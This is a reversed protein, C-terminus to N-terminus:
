RSTTQYRQLEAKTSQLEYDLKRKEHALRRAENASHQAQVESQRKEETRATVEARSRELGGNVEELQVVLGDREVRLRELNQRTSTSEQWSVELRRHAEEGWRKAVDLAQAMARLRTASEHAQPQARREAERAEEIEESRSQEHCTMRRVVEKAIRLIVDESPNKAVCGLSHLRRRSGQYPLFMRLQTELGASPETAKGKGKKTRKAQRKTQAKVQTADSPPSASAKRKESQPPAPPIQNATNMATQRGPEPMVDVHAGSSLAQPPGAYPPAPTPSSATAMQSPHSTRSYPRAVPAAPLAHPVHTGTHDSSGLSTLLGTQPLSGFSSYSLAADVPPPPMGQYPLEVNAVSQAQAQNGSLIAGSAPRGSHSSTVQPTLPISQAADDVSFRFMSAADSSQQPYGPWNDATPYCPTQGGTRESYGPVPMAPVQSSDGWAPPFGLFTSTAPSPPPPQFHSTYPQPAAEVPQLSTQRAHPVYGGDHTGHPHGVRPTSPIPRPASPMSARGATDSSGSPPATIVSSPDWLADNTLSSSAPGFKQTPSSFTPTAHVPSTVSPAADAKSALRHVGMSSALSSPRSRSSASAAFSYSPQRISSPKSPPAMAISAGSPLLQASGRQPQGEPLHSAVGEQQNGPLEARDDNFFQCYTENLAPDYSSGARFASLQSPSQSVSPNSTVNNRVPPATILQPQSPLPPTTPADFPTHQERHQQYSNPPASNRTDKMVQQRSGIRSFAYPDASFRTPQSPTPNPPYGSSESPAPQSQPVNPVSSADHGRYHAAPPQM